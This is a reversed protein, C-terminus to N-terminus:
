PLRATAEGGRPVDLTVLTQWLDFDRIAPDPKALRGPGAPVPIRAEGAANGVVITLAQQNGPGDWMHAVTPIGEGDWQPANAVVLTGTVLALDWAQMGPALRLLDLVYQEGAPEVPGALVLWHSGPEATTVRFTGDPALAVRQEPHQAFFEEEPVLQAKFGTPPRGDITLKGTVVCLEADGLVLDCHSTEGEFVTCSWEPERSRRRDSTSTSTVGPQIEEELELLRWPGPTLREFRYEGGPGVRVTRDYGDGRTLGVITGAPDNGAAAVVRGAIAGGAGLHLALDPAGLGAGGDDVTFAASVAPALGDHEARVVYEGAARPTLLFRGEADSTVDDAADNM